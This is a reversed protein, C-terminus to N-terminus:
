ISKMANRTKNKKQRINRKQHRSTFICQMAVRLLCNLISLLYMIYIELFSSITIRKHIFHIDPTALRCVNRWVFSFYGSENIWPIGNQEIHEIRKFSVGGIIITKNQKRKIRKTEKERQIRQTRCSYKLNTAINLSSEIYHICWISLWKQKKPIELSIQKQPVTQWRIAVDNM